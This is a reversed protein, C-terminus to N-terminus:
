DSGSRELDAIHRPLDSRSHLFDVFVVVGDITTFVTMHEGVRAYRLRSPPTTGMLRACDWTIARGDAIAACRELIDQEYADAQAPGFTDITWIAIELLRAEARPTLRWATM